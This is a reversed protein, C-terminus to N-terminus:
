LCASPPRRFWGKAATSGWYVYLDTPPVYPNVFPQNWGSASSLLGQHQTSDAVDTAAAAAPKEAKKEAKKEQKDGEKTAMEQLALETTPLEALQVMIARQGKLAAAMKLPPGAQHYNSEGGRRAAAHGGLSTERRKGGAAHSRLSQVRRAKYSADYSSYGATEDASDDTKVEDEVQKYPGKKALDKYMWVVNTGLSGMGFDVNNAFKAMAFSDLPPRDDGQEQAEAPQAAAAKAPAASPPSSPAMPAAAAPQADGKKATQDAERTPAAAAAKHQVAPAAAKRPEDGDSLFAMNTGMVFTADEDAGVDSWVGEDPGSAGGWPGREPSAQRVGGSYVPLHDQDVASLPKMAVPPADDEESGDTAAAVATPTSAKLQAIVKAQKAVEAQALLPTLSRAPPFPLQRLQPSSPSPTHPLSPLYFRTPPPPPHLHPLPLPPPLVELHSVDAADTEALSQSKGKFMAAAVLAHMRNGLGRQKEVNRELKARLAAGGHVFTPKAQELAIGRPSPSAVLALVVLTVGAAALAAQIRWGPQMELLWTLLLPSPRLTLVSIMVSIMMM